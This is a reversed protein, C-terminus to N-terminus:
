FFNYTFGLSLTQKIQAKSTVDNDYIMYINLNVSFYKALKSSIRSEWRVDIDKFRRMNYFLQIKSLFSLKKNPIFKLQTQSNIGKELKFHEVVDKTKPNDSYAPYLKTFTEKLALGMRIYVNEKFRIGSGASQTIYAPDWFGSRAQPPKKSYDYGRTFQTLLQVSAFPNLYKKKKITTSGEMEIRDLSNRVQEGGIKTQGFAFHGQLTINYLKTNNVVSSNIYAAYSLAAEGGAAWNSYSVQSAALRLELKKKLGFIEPPPPPLLPFYNKARTISPSFLLFLVLASYAFTQTIKRLFVSM